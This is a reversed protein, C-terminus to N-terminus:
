ARLGGIHLIGGGAGTPLYLGGASWVVMDAPVASQMFTDTEACYNGAPSGCSLQARLDVTMVEGRRGSKFVFVVKGGCPSVVSHAFPYNLNKPFKGGSGDPSIMCQFVWGLRPTMECGEFVTRRYIHTCEHARGLSRVLVVLTDGTPTLALINRPAMVATSPDGGLLALSRAQRFKADFFLVQDPGFPRRADLFALDGTHRASSPSDLTGCDGLYYYSAKREELSLVKVHTPTLQQMERFGNSLTQSLWCVTREHVWLAHVVAVVYYTHLCENTAMDWVELEGDDVSRRALEAEHVDEM